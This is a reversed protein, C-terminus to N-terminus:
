EAESSSTNRQDLAYAIARELPMARGAAWAAAFTEDGM